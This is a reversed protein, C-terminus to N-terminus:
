GYKVFKNGILVKIPFKIKLIIRNEVNMCNTIDKHNIKSRTNKVM